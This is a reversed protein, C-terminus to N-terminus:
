KPPREDFFVAEIIVGAVIAVMLVAWVRTALDLAQMLVEAGQSRVDEGHSAM